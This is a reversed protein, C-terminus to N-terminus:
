WKQYKYKNWDSFSVLNLLIYENSLFEKAKVFSEIPITRATNNKPFVHSRSSSLNTEASGWYSFKSFFVASKQVNQLRIGQMWMISNKSCLILQSALWLGHQVCYESFQKCISANSSFLIGVGIQWQLGLCIHYGCPCVNRNKMM